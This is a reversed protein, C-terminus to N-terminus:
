YGEWFIHGKLKFLWNFSSLYISKFTPHIRMERSCRNGTNPPNQNESFVANHLIQTLPVTSINWSIRVFALIWTLPFGTIHPSPTNTKVSQRIFVHEYSFLFNKAKSIVRCNVIKTSHGLRFKLRLRYRFSCWSCTYMFTSDKSIRKLASRYLAKSAAATVYLTM